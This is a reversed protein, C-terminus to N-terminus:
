ANSSGKTLVSRLTTLRRNLSADLRQDAIQVTIGGLQDGDVSLRIGGVAGVLPKLLSELDDSRIVQDDALKVRAFGPQGSSVVLQEVSRAIAPLWSLHGTIGLETVISRTWEDISADRLVAAVAVSTTPLAVLEALIARVEALASLADIRARLQDPTAGEVLLRAYHRPRITM